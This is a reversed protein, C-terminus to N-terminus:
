VVRSSSPVSETGTIRLYALTWYAHSFTGLVAAAIILFPLLIVGAIIGTIIAATTLEAVALLITPLFLVLGVVAGAVLLSISAVIILAIQILWVLISRGLNQRFIRLGSGISATVRQGRIVIERLAFQAIISLSVFVVILLPIAVLAALAVTAVRAGTAETGVFVAAVVLGLPAAIAILLALGILFFLICYGLVRWFRSTGARWTSGFSRRQGRDIAVVSDALGGYSIVVLALFIVFLLLALLVLVIIVGVEAGGIPSDFPFQGFLPASAGSRDFDNDPGGGGMPFNPNFDSTGGVGAFFGFFWLYRNRLTIWFADQILDWYNLDVEVIGKPTRYRVRRSAWQTVGEGLFGDV